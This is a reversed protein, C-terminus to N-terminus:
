LQSKYAEINKEYIKEFKKKYIQSLTRWQHALLEILESNDKEPHNEKMELLNHQIFINYM